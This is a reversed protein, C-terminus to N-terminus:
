KAQNALMSILRRAEAPTQATATVAAAYVTLLECGPPLSDVLIVGPTARIETEQTCGIPHLATSRALAQMATAGNPATRWRPRTQDAIKLGEMVKVFHIGATAQQPDPFHIEDAELLSAQLAQRTGVVPRRDGSRMAISTAVTAVDTVSSAVVKGDRALEDILARSLIMLDAPEGALLKVKMAGVAGFTGEIRQGSEKEFAARVTEVLGHTAGGSLIRLVSM